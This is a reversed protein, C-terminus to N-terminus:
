RLADVGAEYPLRQAQVLRHRRDRAALLGRELRKGVHAAAEECGAIEGTIAFTRGLPCIHEFRECTRVIM